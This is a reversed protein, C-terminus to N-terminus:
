FYLVAHVWPRGSCVRRLLTTCCAASPRPTHALYTTTNCHSRTINSWMNEDNVCVCSCSVALCELLFCPLLFGARPLSFRHTAATSTLAKHAASAVDGESHAEGGATSCGTTSFIALCGRTGRSQKSGARAGPIPTTSKSTQTDVHVCANWVGIM